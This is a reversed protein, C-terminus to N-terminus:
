LGRASRFFSFGVWNFLYKCYFEGPRRFEPVPASPQPLTPQGLTPPALTPPALTPPLTPRPPVPVDGDSLGPGPFCGSLSCGIWWGCM